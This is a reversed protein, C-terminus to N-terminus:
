IIDYKNQHLHEVAWGLSRRARSLRVSLQKPTINLRTSIEAYNIGEEVLELLTRDQTRLTALGESVLHREDEHEVDSRPDSHPCSISEALGPTDFSVTQRRHEYRMRSNAVNRAISYLWTTVKSDGRFRDYSRLAKVLTIQALDEASSQDVGTHIMMYRCIRGFNEVYVAEFPQKESTSSTVTGIESM